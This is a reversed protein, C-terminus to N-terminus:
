SCNQIREANALGVWDAVIRYKNSIPRIGISTDVAIELSEEGASIRGELVNSDPGEKLQQLGFILSQDAINGLGIVDHMHDLRDGVLVDLRVLFILFITLALYNRQCSSAEFKKTVAGSM